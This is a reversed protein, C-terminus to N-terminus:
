ASVEKDTVARKMKRWEFLSYMSCLIETVVFAYWGVNIGFCKMLGYTLPILIVLQRALTIVLSTNAKNLAQFAACLVMSIGAFVFSLSIIKLAPIGFAYMEDNASFMSLLQKPFLQFIITGIFMIGISLLLSFQIADRARDKRKAGNNYAVIPILANTIGLVAMNLFNQLKYYVSFASIAMASIPALIMNMFVTMFSLVSQMLIAPVGVKYIRALIDTSFSFNSMKIQLTDIKKKTIWYGIMMGCFQGIVTAIAAGTVGMRPLGFWGFILIPDLIINIIAGAGQMVMNYIANGTAQMIREFIIQVFVSFSFMTCIRIYTNALGLIQADRTFWSLFTNSFLVGLVLFVLGNLFGLLIGHMMTNNAYDFKKEGLYRALLTNFGVATGCAIAVIITQVPYCLSVATLADSSIKAVFISDVINYLAQIVMSIIIPLSMSVVLQKIEMHEMKNM